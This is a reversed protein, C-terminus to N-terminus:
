TLLSFFSSLNQNSAAKEFVDGTSGDCGNVAGRILRTEFRLEDSKEGGLDQFTKCVKMGFMDPMAVEFAVVNKDISSPYALDRVKADGLLSTLKDILWPIMHRILM